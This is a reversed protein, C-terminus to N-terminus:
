DAKVVKGSGAISQDIKPDGKYQVNGSGAVDVKLYNNAFVFFEGSGALECTVSDAQLDFALIKGSGSVKNRFSEAIGTIKLDYSGAIKSNIRKAVISDIAVEASGALKIDFDETQLKGKILAKVSGSSVIGVLEKSNTYINYKSPKIKKESDITLIGDKTEIVLLPLINEDTEIRLYPADNVKQEYELTAGGSFKITSYDSINFEQEKIVKNGKVSKFDCSQATYAILLLSFAYFFTKM